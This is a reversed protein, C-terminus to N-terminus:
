FIHVQGNFKIRAVRDLNVTRFGNDKMSYVIINDYDTPNYKLGKGNIGKRVGFRANISRREGNLKYFQVNFIGGTQKLQKLLEQM